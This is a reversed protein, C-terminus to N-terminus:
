QAGGKLNALEQEVVATWEELGASGSYTEGVIKGDKDVFFTEPFAEIGMLRGHFYTSDPLLFPYTAGTKQALQQAKAQATPDIEGKENLVDLVVGVVNVGKDAMQQHLKELEPIEAVCPSCWTTFVNVLTLDYGQFIEQTYATGNVDQTTFPGVADGTFDKQPAAFASEGQFPTMDTITAEVQRVLAVLEAPAKTNVSLYYYYAGDASQGLARHEDCGTLQDLQEVQDGQYVGLTGIRELSKLWRDYGDGMTEVEADRQEPTLTNWSLLAYVLATGDSTVAQDPQMSVTKEDMGTLLAEPLVASLGMYPFDYRDMATMGSDSPRFTGEQAVQGTQDTEENEKPTCGGLISVCLLGALLAAGWRKKSEGM